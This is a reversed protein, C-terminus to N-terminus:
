RALQGVGATFLDPLLRAAPVIAGGAFRRAALLTETLLRYRRSDRLWAREYDGPRDAVIASVLSRACALAVAIGEGTLADVYGSADGVLLVRGQVRARTRQRLPGAGRVTSGEIADSPLRALVRPFARLQEALSAKVSTLVAVGVLDPAVPTIYCESEAAWHVEVLDSWPALAFHQRLGWRPRGTPPLQLGLSRRIPSHLGDAAVLYRARLGAAEVGRDDQIIEGVGANTVTIGLEAVRAAMAAHLATRRVGMGPGSRFFATASGRRDYYRIGHFPNGHLEVGLAALERAAGPMLGEGCAKDIPAARPELITVSLGAGAAYIATALGAPGAGAILVDIM